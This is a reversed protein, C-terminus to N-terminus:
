FAFMTMILTILKEIFAFIADWDPEGLEAFAQPNQGIIEALVLDQVEDPDTVGAFAGARRM